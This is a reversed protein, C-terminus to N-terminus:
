LKQVIHGLVDKVVGDVVVCHGNAGEIDATVAIYEASKLHFSAERAVRQSVELNRKNAFTLYYKDNM